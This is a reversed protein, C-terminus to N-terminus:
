DVTELKLEIKSNGRYEIDFEVDIPVSEVVGQFAHMVRITIWLNLKLAQVRNQKPDWQYHGDGKVTTFLNASLLEVEAGMEELRRVPNWEPGLESLELEEEFDVHLRVRDITDDAGEAAQVLSLVMLGKPDRLFQSPSALVHSETAEVQGSAFNGNQRMGLEGGPELLRLFALNNLEWEQEGGPPPRLYSLDLDADHDIGFLAQDMVPDFLQGDNSLDFFLTQGQFPSYRIAGAQGQERSGDRGSGEVQTDISAKAFHREVEGLYPGTAARVQDIVELRRENFIEMEPLPLPGEGNAEARSDPSLRIETEMTFTRRLGFYDNATSEEFPVFEQSEDLVEVQPQEPESSAEGEVGAEIEVEQAVPDDNSEADEIKTSERLPPAPVAERGARMGSIPSVELALSDSAELGEVGRFFWVAFGLVLVLPGLIWLQRVLPTKSM